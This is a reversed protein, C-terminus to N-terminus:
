RITGGVIDGASTSEVAPALSAGAVIAGLADPTAETDEGERNRFIGPAEIGRKRAVVRLLRDRLRYGLGGLGEPLFMLLLLIGGGSAIFSWGGTLFYQTCWVYIAGLVVGPLSGLGGIVVMSFLAINIDASFSGQNVGRQHIVFLAGAFGAIAGSVIFATLKIRTTDLTAARAAPENDRVAILSRGTRSRRLSRVGLLVALFSLLCLYYIGKDSDLVHHGFVTPRPVQATVFWTLYQPSLFYSSVSVGFALTTVALFPGQIRLAPLGIVLAALAGVVVAAATALLYNYGHHVSLMAATAGGFGALGFQGLSIQGTWGTLVLLSLGVICYILIAAMLYTQSTTLIAPILAAAVVLLVRGGRISWVVEPLRALARPIPRIEAISRWTTNDSESVRVYKGRQLLLAAGIVLVLTADVFVTNSFTWTALSEFVGIGIAAAATRPLNEMRGIVAAALTRLLIDTGGGSVTQFGSFGLVPVRLLIAMASLVAALCWVITELRPVPIGLLTARDGNDAAARIAVGYRSYRLFAALGIVMIAAGGLAVIDNGSFIVPYLTFHAHLPTNFTQNNAATLCNPNNAPNCFELPILAALGNLLQALGITAVTLILRSSRRFRRIIVGNIIVGLLIASVIGVAMALFWNLHYQVVLEIALVAAIVGFEAQAFNIVRSGRYVLVIGIAVLAYLSGYVVGLLVVGAPLGKSLIHALVGWVLIFGVLGKLPPGVVGLPAWMRAAQARLTPATDRIGM